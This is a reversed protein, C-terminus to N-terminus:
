IREYIDLHNTRTLKNDKEGLSKKLEAIWQPWANVGEKDTNEAM